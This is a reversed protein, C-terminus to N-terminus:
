GHGSASRKKRRRVKTVDDREESPSGPSRQRPPHAYSISMWGGRDGVPSLRSRQEREVEAVESGSDYSGVADNGPGSWRKTIVVGGGGGNVGPSFSAMKFSAPLTTASSTREYPAKGERGNAVSVAFLTSTLRKPSYVPQIVPDEEDLASASDGLMSTVSVSTSTNEDTPTSVCSTDIVDHGELCFVNPLSHSRQDTSRLKQLSNDFVTCLGSAFSDEGENFFDLRPDFIESDAESDISHGSLRVGGRGGVEGNEGIVEDVPPSPPPPFSPKTPSPSSTSAYHTTGPPDVVIPPVDTDENPCFSYTKVERTLDTLSGRLESVVLNNPGEPSPLSTDALNGGESGDSHRRPHTRRGWNQWRQRYIWRDSLAREIALGGTPDRKPSSLIEEMQVTSRSLVNLRRILTELETQLLFNHDKEVHFKSISLPFHGDEFLQVYQPFGAAKLWWCADVAERVQEKHRQARQGASFTRRIATKARLLPSSLSPSRPRHLKKDVHAEIPTLWAFLLDGGAGNHQESM